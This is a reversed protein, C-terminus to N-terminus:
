FRASFSLSGPGIGLRATTDDDGREPLVRVSPRFSKGFVVWGIPTLTAGGLFTVLGALFRSDSQNGTNTGTSGFLAVGGVLAGMGVIATGLGIWRGSYGRPSVDLRSAHEIDVSSTGERTSSTAAVHLRYHGPLVFM